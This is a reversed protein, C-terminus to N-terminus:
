VPAFLQAPFLYAHVVDFRPIHKQLTLLHAPSYFGGGATPLFVIDLDRLEKEFPSDLEKLVAVTVDLGRTRMRPVMDKVLAEAGALILSDILHLVRMQLTYPAYWFCSEILMGRLPHDSICNRRM